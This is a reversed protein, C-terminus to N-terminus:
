GTSRVSIENEVPIDKFDIKAALTPNGSPINKVFDWNPYIQSPRPISFTPLNLPWKSYMVAM